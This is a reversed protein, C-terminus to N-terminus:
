RGELVRAIFNKLHDQACGEVEPVNRKLTNRIGDTDQLFDCIVQTKQEPSHLLSLMYKEVGVQKCMQLKKNTDPVVLTPVYNRMAAMSPHMKYSLVVDPAQLERWREGLSGKYPSWLPPELNNEECLVRCAIAMLENRIHESSYPNAKRLVPYFILQDEPGMNKALARLTEEQVEQSGKYGIPIFGINRKGRRVEPPIEGEQIYAWGLDPGVGSCPVGLSRLYNYSEPDRTWVERCGAFYIAYKKADESSLTPKTGGMLPQHVGVGYVYTPRELFEQHFYYDINSVIIDGGGIFVVDADTSEAKKAPNPLTIIEHGPLYQRWTSLFIDDGLNGMGFYGQALVRLRVV